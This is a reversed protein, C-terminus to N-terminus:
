GPPAKLTSAELIQDDRSVPSQIRSNSHIMVEVERLLNLHLRCSFDHLNGEKRQKDYMQFDPMCCLLEKRLPFIKTTHDLYFYMEGEWRQAQWRRSRNMCDSAVTAARSLVVCAFDLIYWMLVSARSAVQSSLGLLTTFVEDSQLWDSFSSFIM